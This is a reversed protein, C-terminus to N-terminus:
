VLVVPVVLITAAAMQVPYSQVYLGASLDALALPVTKSAESDSVVLPWFLANWANMFTFVALASLAPWVRPVVVHWLLDAEGMGDLRGAELVSDSVANMAQRMYFVGFGSALFPVILGRLTDVLHLADTVLYAFVFFVQVPLMMTALAMGFLIRRGRFRLKAFAYGALLNHAVALVTTVVAVILSNAFFRDLNAERVARSFNGWQPATPLLTTWAVPQVAEADTKLATSLMWAFPVLMTAALGWVALQVALRAPWKPQRRRSM